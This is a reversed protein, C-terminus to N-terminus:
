EARGFATRIYPRLFPRELDASGRFKIHRMTRGAGELVGDPDPLSAGRCFGLNVHASAMAIYLAMDQMKPGTGYWLAHPHNRYLQEIARPAEKLVVERLALALAGTQRDAIALFAAFAPDLPAAM